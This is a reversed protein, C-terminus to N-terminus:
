LSEEETCEYVRKVSKNKSKYNKNPPLFKGTQYATKKREPSFCKDARVPFVSGEDTPIRVYLHNARGLGCHRRELLQRDELEKLAARVTRETKGLVQALDATGYVVFVRGRGDQFAEHQMSLRTRDLLVMYLLKATDGIDQRSLLFRPFIMYTPLVGGPTIFKTM